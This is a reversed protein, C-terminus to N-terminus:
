MNRLVIAPETRSAERAPLYAGIIMTVIEIIMVISLFNWPISTTGALTRSFPMMNNLLFGMIFGFVMGLLISLILSALVVGTFESFVMTVIQRKSGGIARLVAYEKRRERVVSGLSISLAFISLILSMVFGISFLGEVTNLFLATQLSQSKLNFTEPTVPYVGPISRMASILQTQNTDEALGALFLNTTETELTEATFNLNTFAYGSGSLVQYGFGAGQASPPIDSVSSYGFGPASHVTGVVTFWVDQTTGVGSMELRITSSVNLNLFSALRESVIIGDPTAALAALVTAPDQDGFSSEDFHGIKAYTLPDLAQLQIDMSPLGAWARLVPTVQEVGEVEALTNNFAFERDTCAIRLDAGVAYTVERDLDVRLSESQVAFAITTSMTLALVVMLPIIRGKRMRLYGASILNKQGLLFSLKKSLKALGVRSIRSGNYAIFFWAATGLGLEFLYFSSSKPLIIMLAVVIVLLTISAGITFGHSEVQETTDETVEMLTLGIETQAAKRALYLIFLMSPLVTLAIARLTTGGTLVTNSIYYSYVSWDFVMFSTTAPILPAFLISFVVGMVVAMISIALTEWLFIASVQSYSAGKSRIVGVEVTRPSMFTDAAFVSFFLALLIVPLALISLSLSEIYANVALQMNWVRDAGDWTINYMEQTQTVLSFLNSAIDAPGAAALAAGSVRMLSSSPFFGYEPLSSIPVTDQLIMISDRLGLVPYRLNIGALNARRMSPLAREIMSDTSIPDFIGVIRLNNRTTRGLTGLTAPVGPDNGMLIDLDITDNIQLTYDLLYEALYIFYSSVLVEGEHLEFSGQTWLDREVIDLFEDDVFITRCDKIGETYMPGTIDYMKTDPFSTNTHVTGNDYGALIGVTSNIRYSSEIFPSQLMYAEAQDLLATSGIDSQIQLQFANNELHEYISVYVGTDGWVMTSAFLSIGLSLTLALSFARFPNARISSMAYSLGYAKNGQATLKTTKRPTAM